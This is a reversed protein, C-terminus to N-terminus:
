PYMPSATEHVTEPWTTPWEQCERSTNAQLVQSYQVPTEADLNVGQHSLKNYAERRIHEVCQLCHIELWRLVKPLPIGDRPPYPLM